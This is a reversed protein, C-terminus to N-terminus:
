YFDIYMYSKSHRSGIGHVYYFNKIKKIHEVRTLRVEGADYCM